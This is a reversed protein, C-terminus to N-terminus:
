AFKVWITSSLNTTNSNALALAWNVYSPYPNGVLNYGTKATATSTLGAISQAGTNLTGAFTFISSAAPQVVYGIMNAFTTGSSVPTWTSGNNGAEVYNYYTNGTPATAGNVPSSMYWNRTTALYQNVTATVATNPATVNDQFTGTGTADSQIVFGTNGANNTFTGNTTLQKGPAINLVKGSNILLTGGITTLTSNATVGAANDIILSNFNDNLRNYLRVVFGSRINRNAQVGSCTFHPLVSLIFEKFGVLM